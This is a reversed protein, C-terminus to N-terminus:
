QELAQYCEILTNRDAGAIEERVDQPCNFVPQNNEPDFAVIAIVQTMLERFMLDLTVRHRLDAGHKELFAKVESVCGTAASLYEDGSLLRLGIKMGRIDAVTTSNRHNKIKELTITM